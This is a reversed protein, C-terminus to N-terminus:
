RAEAYDSELGEVECNQCTFHVTLLLGFVFVTNLALSGSIVLKSQGDDQSLGANGDDEGDQRFKVKGPLLFFKPLGGTHQVGQSVLAIRFDCRGFHQHRCFNVSFRSILQYLWFHTFLVEEVQLTRVSM